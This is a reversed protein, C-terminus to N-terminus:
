RARGCRRAASRRGWGSPTEQAFHLPVGALAGHEAAAVQERRLGAEVHDALGADIADGHGAARDAVRPDERLGARQGRGAAAAAASSQELLAVHDALVVAQGFLDVAGFTQPRCIRLNPMLYERSCGCASATRSAKMATRRRSSQSRTSSVTRRRLGGRGGGTPQHPHSPSTRPTLVLSCDRRTFSKNAQSGSKRSFPDHFGPTKRLYSSGSQVSNLHREYKGPFVRPKPTVVTPVIPPPNPDSTGRCLVRVVSSLICIYVIWASAPPLNESSKAVCFVARVSRSAFASAVLLLMWGTPEPVVALALSSQTQTLRWELDGSLSPLQVRDFSGVLIGAALLDFQDGYQPGDLWSPDLTVNLVGDLNAVGSVTLTDYQTGPSLGALEMSLVSSPGFTVDELTVAAPSNGPSFSDLIRINGTFSGAGSLPAAFTM